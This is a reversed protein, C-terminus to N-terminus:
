GMSHLAVRNGESDLFQAFFGLDPAVMTKGMLIKGGAPEIRNLVVALDAGATLYVVTGEASPVHGEGHIIAGGVGKGQEHLLFGMTHSGMKMEPMEFDFIASYFAKARAFDAVPIEFWNLANTTMEMTCDKSATVPMIPSKLGNFNRACRFYIRACRFYIPNVPKIRDSRPIGAM